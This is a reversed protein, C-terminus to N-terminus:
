ATRTCPSAKQELAANPPERNHQLSVLFDRSVPALLSRPDVRLIDDHTIGHMTRGLRM